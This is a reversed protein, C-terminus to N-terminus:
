DGTNMEEYMREGPENHEVVPAYVLSERFARKGLLYRVIVMPDRYYYPIKEGGIDLELHHWSAKGLIDNMGVLRKMFGRGIRYSYEGSRSPAHLFFIDINGQSAKSLKFYRAM